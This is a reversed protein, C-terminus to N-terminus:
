HWGEISLYLLLVSTLMIIGKVDLNTDSSDVKLMCMVHRYRVMDENRDSSQIWVFSGLHM